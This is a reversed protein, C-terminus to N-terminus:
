RRPKYTRWSTLLATCVCFTGSALLGAALLGAVSSRTWRLPDAPSCSDTHSACPYVSAIALRAQCQDRLVFSLWTISMAPHMYRKARIASVHRCLQSSTTASKCCPTLCGPSCAQVGARRLQSQNVELDATIGAQSDSPAMCGLRSRCSRVRDPKAAIRHLSRHRVQSRACARAGSVLSAPSLM